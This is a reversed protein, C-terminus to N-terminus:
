VREHWPLLADAENGGCCKRREGLGRAGWGGSACGMGQELPNREAVRV